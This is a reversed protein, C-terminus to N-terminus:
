ATRTRAAPRAPSTVASIISRCKSAVPRKTSAPAMRRRRPQRRQPREQGACACGLSVCNRQDRRQGIIRMDSKLVRPWVPYPVPRRFWPNCTRIRDPAGSRNERTEEKPRIEKCTGKARTRAANFTRSSAFRKRLCPTAAAQDSLPQFQHQDAHAHHEEHQPGEHGERCRQRVRNADPMPRGACRRNFVLDDSGDGRGDPMM